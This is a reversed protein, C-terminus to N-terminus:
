LFNGSTTKVIYHTQRGINNESIEVVEGINYNAKINKIIKDRLTM